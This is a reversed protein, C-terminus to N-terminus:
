APHDGQAPPLSSLRQLLLNERFRTEQLREPIQTLVPFSSMTAAFFGFM